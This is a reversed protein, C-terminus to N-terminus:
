SAIGGDTTFAQLGIIEVMTLDIHREDDCMRVRKRTAELTGKYLSYWVKTSIFCDTVILRRWTRGQNDKIGPEALGRMRSSARVVNSQVGNTEGSKLM